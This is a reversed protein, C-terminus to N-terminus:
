RQRCVSAFEPDSVSGTLPRPHQLVDRGSRQRGAAANGPRVRNGQRRRLEAGGNAGAEPAASASQDGSSRWLAAFGSLRCRSPRSAKSFNSPGLEKPPKKPAATPSVIQTLSYFVTEVLHAGVFGAVVAWTMAGAIQADSIGYSPAHKRIIWWGTCVGAPVPVGFPHIALGGILPLSPVKSM